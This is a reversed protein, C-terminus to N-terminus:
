KIAARDRIMADIADAIKGCTPDTSTFHDCEARYMKLMRLSEARRIHLLALPAAFLNVLSGALTLLPADKLPYFHFYLFVSASGAFIAPYIAFYTAITRRDSTIVQNIRHAIACPVARSYCLDKSFAITVAGDGPSTRWGSGYGSLASDCRGHASM